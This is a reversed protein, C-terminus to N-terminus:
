SVSYGAKVKADLRQQFEDLAKGKAEEFVKIATLKKEENEKKELKFQEVNGLSLIYKDIIEGYSRNVSRAALMDELSLFCCTNLMAEYFPEYEANFGTNQMNSVLNTM